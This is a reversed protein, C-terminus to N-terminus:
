NSGKLTVIQNQLAWRATIIHLQMGRPWAINVINRHISAPETEDPVILGPPVEKLHSSGAQHNTINLDDAALQIAKSVVSGCSRVGCSQLM